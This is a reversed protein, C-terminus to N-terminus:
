ELFHIEALLNSARLLKASFDAIRRPLPSDDHTVAREIQNMWSVDAM